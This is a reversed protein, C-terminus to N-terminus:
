PCTNPASPPCTTIQVTYAKLDNTRCFTYTSNATVTYVRYTYSGGSPPYTYTITDPAPSPGTNNTIVFTGKNNDIPDGGTTLGSHCEKFTGNQPGTTVIQENWMDSGDKACAWKGGLAARIENARLPVGDPCAAGAEAALGALTILGFLVSLKM